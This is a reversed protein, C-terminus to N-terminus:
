ALGLNELVIDPEFPQLDKYEQGTGLYLIPKQTVYSVSVAAGGKEDIDAKSLIIGDFSVADNFAKAQEICDNGTISEGVFIKLDPKAVRMIKKMEDMLNINSHLRGATDILVVDKNTAQAHRIADFAVAAPDAGYDHKIVKIGLRSGHEELQDIAAARFTDAAAIVVNYGNEKLLHAIKAITTTKGSGNIGVFCIVYPKKTSIRELLDFGTVNLVDTLSTKLTTLIIGEVQGRPIPTDVLQAHLDAKIKDIVDLAVNSELLGLELENFIEEFKDNNITTTTIAQKLKGFLGTPAATKPSTPGSVQAASEAAQVPIAPTPGPISPTPAEKGTIKEKLKAFFSKQVPPPTPAAPAQAQQPTPSSKEAIIREVREIAAPHQEHGPRTEPEPTQFQKTEAPIEEVREIAPPHGPHKAKAPKTKPATSKAPKESKKTLVADVPRIASPTIEESRTETKQTEAAKDEAVEEKQFAKSISSIAGKLKNKLFSFM